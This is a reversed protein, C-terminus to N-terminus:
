KSQRRFRLVAKDIGAVASSNWIDSCSLDIVVGEGGEKFDVSGLIGTTTALVLKGIAACTREPGDEGIDDRM